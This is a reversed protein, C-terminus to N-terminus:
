ITILGKNECEQIFLIPPPTGKGFETSEARETTFAEESTCRRGMFCM